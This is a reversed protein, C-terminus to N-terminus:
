LQHQNLKEKMESLSSLLDHVKKEIMFQAKPEKSSYKNLQKIYFNLHKRLGEISFKEEYLLAKILLLIKIDKQFYLRQKNIFKSPKLSAFEKEWYRLVHNPVGIIDSVEGIKFNLKEPLKNLSNEINQFHKELDLMNFNNKLLKVPM